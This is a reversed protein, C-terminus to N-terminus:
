LGFYSRVNFRKDKDMLLDNALHYFLEPSIDGVTTGMAMALTPAHDSYVMNMVTWLAYSNYCPEHEVQLDLSEMAKKWLDYTWPANPVMEDVIHEAEKRTLYNDWKIACLRDLIDQAFEPKNQIMWDMMDTMASGFVKMDETKDSSSMMDYLMTYKQKMEQTNM